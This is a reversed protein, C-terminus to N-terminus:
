EGGKSPPLYKLVVRNQSDVLWRGERHLQSKAVPSPPGSNDGGSTGGPQPVNGSGCAALLAFMMAILVRRM